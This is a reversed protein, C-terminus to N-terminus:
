ESEGTTPPLPPPTFFATFEAAEQEARAAKRENSIEILDNPNSRHAFRILLKEQETLPLPPAPHSVQATDEPLAAAILRPPAVSHSQPAPSTTVAAIHPKTTNNVSQTPPTQAISLTPENRRTVVLLCAIVLTACTLPIWRLSRHATAHSTPRAVAQELTNLIRREMGPPPTAETLANLLTDIHNHDPTM